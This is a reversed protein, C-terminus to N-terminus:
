LNVSSLILNRYSKSKKQSVLYGTVLDAINEPRMKLFSFLDLNNYRLFKSICFCYIKRTEESDISNIFNFYSQTEVKLIQESENSM